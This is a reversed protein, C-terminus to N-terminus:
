GGGLRRALAITEPRPGEVRTTRHMEVDGSLPVSEQEASVSGEGKEKEKINTNKSKGSPYGIGDSVRDLPYVAADGDTMHAMLYANLAHLVDHAEGDKSRWEVLKPAGPQLRLQRILDLKADCDPLALAERFAAIAHKCTRVPNFRLYGNLVVYPRFWHILGVRQFDRFVDNAQELTQFQPFEEFLTAPGVRLVGACTKASTHLWIYGLRAQDTALQNFKESQWITTSILGFPRLGSSM